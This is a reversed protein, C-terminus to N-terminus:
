VGNSGAGKADRALQRQTKHTPAAALPDDPWPHKPYRRRLDKRVEAYTRRWFSQLDQTVQVPRGNPALLHLLVPVRGGVVRPTDQLGFLEQLKVALIPPAGDSNYNLAISQGSPVTVHTPAEIALARRQVPSLLGELWAGLDEKQLDALRTKGVCLTPLLEGLADDGLAPLALEPHWRRLTAVRARLPAIAGKPLARALNLAAHHALLTAAEDPDPTEPHEDIVLDGVRRQRRAIVRADGEDWRHVLVTQIDLWTEEIASALRVRGEVGRDDVVLAIFLTANRVVSEPALTVGRGGMLIARPSGPGRRRAVRDPFGALIARRLINDDRAEAGVDRPAEGRTASTKTAS